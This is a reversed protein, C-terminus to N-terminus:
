ALVTSGCWLPASTYMRPVDGISQVLMGTSNRGETYIQRYSSTVKVNAAASNSGGATTGGLTANGDVDSLWGGGGGISQVLLAPSGNGSTQIFRGGAQLTIAGGTSTSTGTGTQGLIATGGVVDGMGGGGGVSQVVVGPSAYGITYVNGSLQADIVGASLNGSVNTSGLSVNGVASGTLGGGGGISQLVLGASAAGFTYLNTNLEANIPGGNLTGGGDSGIRADPNSRLLSWGGGGGISQGV